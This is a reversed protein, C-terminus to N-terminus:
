PWSIWASFTLKLLDIRLSFFNGSAWKKPSGPHGLSLCDAQWHLLCLLHLNLRRILFIGQLLFPLGNWYEQRPFAMSLPAQLAITWLTVFSWVHSLSFVCLHGKVLVSDGSLDFIGFLPWENKDKHEWITRTFVSVSVNEFTTSIM